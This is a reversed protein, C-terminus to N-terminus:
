AAVIARVEVGLHLEVCGVQRRDDSPARARLVDRRNEADHRPDLIPRALLLAGRDLAREVIHPELAPLLHRIEGDVAHEDAGAGIAADLIQAGGRCDGVTVLDALADVRHDHRSRTQDLRLGLGFAEVLDEEGRAELPALGAARHAERHVGVLKAWALAASRGRGAIELATLAIPAAGMKHRGCHGRRSRDGATEDVYPIPALGMFTPSRRMSSLSITSLKTREEPGPPCFTLLTALATSSRNSARLEGFRGFSTATRSMLSAPDRAVWCPTMTM